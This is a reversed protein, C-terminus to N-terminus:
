SWLGKLMQTAYMSELEQKLKRGAKWHAHGVSSSVYPSRNKNRCGLWFAYRAPTNPPNEQIFIKFLEKKDMKLFYDMASQLRSKEYATM